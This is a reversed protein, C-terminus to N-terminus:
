RAGGTDFEPIEDATLVVEAEVSWVDGQKRVRPEAPIRVRGYYRVAERAADAAIKRTVKM